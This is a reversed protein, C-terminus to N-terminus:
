HALRQCSVRAERTLCADPAGLALEALFRIAEPTRTMELAEIARITRRQEPNGAELRDLISELRRRLEL